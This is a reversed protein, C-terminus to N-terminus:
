EADFLYSIKLNYKEGPKLITSPFDPQNPSDPFHQPELCFGSHKKFSVGESNSFSGDLFNGSYFQIGPETTFVKLKRGTEPEIVEAALTVEGNSKDLVFNHDYGGDVENIRLGVEESETFDFPTGKVSAIEGTPILQANGPTYNKAYLKLQHGLISKSFDGSLNFYSHATLNVPTAKDTTAEFDIDLKDDDTLRYTVTVELNGPYGEEGDKSVYTLKLVDDQVDAKWLVKDFGTKGGHLHNEGDNISLQYENGELTFAGKAIRNGYRGILAGFYPHDKQYDQLNDFGLVINQFDGNKDPTKISTIIGGYNIIQVQIKNANTLTFLHVESGNKLKGFIDQQIKM